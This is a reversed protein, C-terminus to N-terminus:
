LVTKRPSTYLSGDAGRVRSVSPIPNHILGLGLDELIKKIEDLNEIPVGTSMTVSAGV